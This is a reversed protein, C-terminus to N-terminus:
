IGLVSTIVSNPRELFQGWLVREQPRAWRAGSLWSNNFSLWFPCWQIERQRLCSGRALKRQRPSTTPLHLKPSLFYNRCSVACLTQPNDPAKLMVDWRTRDYEFSPLCKWGWEYSMDCYFRSQYGACSTKRIKRHVTGKLDLDLKIEQFRWVIRWLCSCRGRQLLSYDELWKTWEM